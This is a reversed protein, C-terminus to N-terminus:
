KSYELWCRDNNLCKQAWVLSLQTSNWHTLALCHQGIDRRGSLFLPRSHLMGLPCTDGGNDLFSCSLKPNQQQHQWMLSFLHMFYGALIHHNKGLPLVLRNIFGLYPLHWGLFAQRKRWSAGNPNWRVWFLCHCSRAFWHNHWGQFVSLGEGLESGVCLFATKLQWRRSRVFFLGQSCWLVEGHLDCVEAKFSSLRNLPGIDGHEGWGGGGGLGFVPNCM